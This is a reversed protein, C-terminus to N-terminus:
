VNGQAAAAAAAADQDAQRREELELLDAAVNKLQKSYMERTDELDDIREELDGILVEAVDIQESADKLQAVLNLHVETATGAFFCWQLFSNSWCHIVKFSAM